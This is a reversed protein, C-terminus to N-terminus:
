FPISFEVDFIIRISFLSASVSANTGNLSGLVLCGPIAGAASTPLFSSMCYTYYNGGSTVLASINPIKYSAVQTDILMPDIVMASERGIVANSGPNYSVRTPYYAIYIPALYTSYTSSMATEPVM